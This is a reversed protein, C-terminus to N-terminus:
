GALFELAAQGRPSVAHRVHRGEYRKGVLGGISLRRMHESATKLNIRLRDAIEELSLAPQRDLLRLIEIRRHNAFGKVIRELPLETRSM